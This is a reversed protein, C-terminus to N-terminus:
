NSPSIFKYISEPDFMASYISEYDTLSNAAENANFSIKAKYIKKLEARLTSSKAHSSKNALTKIKSLLFKTTEYEENWSQNCIDIKNEIPMAMIKAIVQDVVAYYSDTDDYMDDYSKHKAFACSLASKPDNLDDVSLLNEVAIFGSCNDYIYTSYEKVYKEKKMKM